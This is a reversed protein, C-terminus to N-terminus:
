VVQFSIIAPVHMHLGYQELVFAKTRHVGTLMNTELHACTRLIHKSHQIFTKLSCAFRLKKEHLGEM